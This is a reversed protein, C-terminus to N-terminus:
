RLTWAAEAGEAKKKSQQTLQRRRRLELFAHFEKMRMGTVGLVRGENPEGDGEAADGDELLRPAIVAAGRSPRIPAGGAAMPEWSAAWASKAPCATATSALPTKSPILLAHKEADIVSDLRGRILLPMSIRQGNGAQPRVVRHEAAKFRSRSLVQLFEGVFVVVDRLADVGAQAEPRVWGGCTVNEMDNKGNVRNDFFISGNIGRRRGREEGVAGKVANRYSTTDVPDSYNRDFAEPDAFRGANDYWGPFPDLIELGPVGSAPAITLFTTDTHEGFAVASLEGDPPQPRGSGPGWGWAPPQASARGTQAAVSVPYSHDRDCGVDGGTCKIPAQEKYLCVRLCAASFAGGRIQGVGAHGTLREELGGRKQELDDVLDYFFNPSVRLDDAVLRLAERGVSLLRRMTVEMCPGFQPADAGPDPCACQNSDVRGEVFERNGTNRYGVVQGKVRRFPGLSTKTEEPLAFFSAAAARMEASEVAAEVPLRVWLWGHKRLAATFAESTSSGTTAGMIEQLSFRKRELDLYPRRVPPEMREDFPRPGSWLQVESLKTDQSSLAARQAIMPKQEAAM